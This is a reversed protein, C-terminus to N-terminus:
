GRVRAILTELEAFEADTLDTLPQRVPGADRGVAKMGAKVISVAYGKGRNRLAIYPLVFDRLGTMVTERDRARVAKYFALAWDPLFNFIASSYTTVGMELYPLAFTEATPLGGIYTLRDGMRAYVRMMLELDGVGDKFGVLNPNRDCLKELTDENIIANDRNYVIVGLDTAKCVAEIHAGLGEQTANTLYPPLLLLGDAGAAQADRALDVAIATGYGCGAIVPIKGATEAVAARVVQGVEDPRLSFFEGTGGAAFLGALEHDLMWACHERYPAELFRHQDDFHTVPFSLLGGGLQRAVDTPSMQSM